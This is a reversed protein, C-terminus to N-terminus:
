PCVQKVSTIGSIMVSIGRKNDSAYTTQVCIDQQADILGSPKFIIGAVPATISATAPLSSERLVDKSTTAFVVWRNASAACTTGAAAACATVSQNTRIAEGRALQLASTLESTASSLRSNNILATMSPYAVAALIGIVAVTVM